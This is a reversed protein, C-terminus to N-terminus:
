VIASPVRREDKRLGTPCVALAASYVSLNLGMTPVWSGNKLDFNPIFFAM